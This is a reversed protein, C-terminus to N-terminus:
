KVNNIPKRRKEKILLFKIIAKAKVNSQNYKSYRSNIVGDSKNNLFWKFM